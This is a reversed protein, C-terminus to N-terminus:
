GIEHPHLGYEWKVSLPLPVRSLGCSTRLLASVLVWTPMRAKINTDLQNTVHLQHTFHRPLSESVEGGKAKHGELLASGASSVDDVQTGELASVQGQCGASHTGPM